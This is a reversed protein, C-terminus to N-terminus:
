NAQRSTPGAQQTTEWEPQEMWYIVDSVGINTNLGKRCKTAVMSPSFWMLIQMFPERTIGHFPMRISINNYALYLM